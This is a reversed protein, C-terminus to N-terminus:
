DLAEQALAGSARLSETRALDLAAKQGEADARVVAARATAIQAEASQVGASSGSLAAQASSLGGRSGAEAIRVQADAAAAGAVAAQLEAQAQDLRARYDAPDIAVLLEGDQVAQNDAVYTRLVTGGVRAALPLADADVQADDTSEENRTAFAYGGWCMLAVLVVAGLILFARRGRRRPPPSGARPAAPAAATREDREDAM